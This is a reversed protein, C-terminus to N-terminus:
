SCKQQFYIFMFTDVNTDLPGLNFSKNVADLYKQYVNIVSEM